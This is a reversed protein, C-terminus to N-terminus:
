ILYLVVENMEFKKESKERNGIGGLFVKGKLSLNIM